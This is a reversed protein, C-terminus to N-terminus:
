KKKIEKKPAEKKEEKVPKEASKKEEGPKAEEAGEEAPKEEAAKEVKPKEEEAALAALKEQEKKILEQVQVLQEKILKQKEPSVETKAEKIEKDYKGQDIEPNIERPIKGEVLIGMSGCSGVITKVASKMDKVLMSDRKMKAVKIVQEIAMNSIKEINPKGSGKELQLEKKILESTPPTGVELDIAKTETDVIVKVPVKMGKFDSTKQNIKQIVEGINIKLPGLAQGMQAGATAKGGEVMVEVLEKSM